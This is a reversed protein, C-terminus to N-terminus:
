FQRFYLKTLINKKDKIKLTMVHKSKTYFDWLFKNIKSFMLFKYIYSGSGSGSGSATPDPRKPTVQIRIRFFHVLDAVSSEVLLNMELFLVVLYSTVGM